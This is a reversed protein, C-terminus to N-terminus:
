DGDRPPLPRTSIPFSVSGGTRMEAVLKAAVYAPSYSCIRKDSGDTVITTWYNCTSTISFQLKLTGRKGVIPEVPYATGSWSSTRRANLRVGKVLVAEPWVLFSNVRSLRSLAWECELSSLDLPPESDSSLNAFALQRAPGVVNLAAGLPPGAAIPVHVDMEDFGRYTLPVRAPIRRRAVCSPAVVLSVSQPIVIGGPKLFRKRADAMTPVIQEDFALNGVTESVVVDFERALQVNFSSASIAEVRDALGNEKALERIVGVLLPDMELAVVRKAGLQAAALAWIGSGSGIDLVVSGRKVVKKLAAYFARNRVADDLLKRHSRILEVVHSHLQAEAQASNSM